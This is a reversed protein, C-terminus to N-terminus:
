SFMGFDNVSPAQELGAFDSEATTGGGFPTDDRTKLINGLYFTVGKKGAANYTAVTFTARVWCGAYCESEELDPGKINSASRVQPKSKGKLKVVWCGNEEKPRPEGNNKPGDGDQLPMEIKPPKAGKWGSPGSDALAENVVFDVTQKLNEMFESSGEKPILLTCEYKWEDKPADPRGFPAKPKFIAPYSLRAEPSLMLSPKNNHM